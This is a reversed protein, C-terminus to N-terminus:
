LRSLEDWESGNYVLWMQSSGPTDMIYDGALNMDDVDDKLTIDASGAALLLVVTQGQGFLGALTNLDVASASTLTHFPALVNVANAVVTLAEADGTDDMQNQGMELGAPASGTTFFLPTTVGVLENKFVKCQDSIVGLQMATQLSLLKNNDIVLDSVNTVTIGDGIAQGNVTNRAISLLVTQLSGESCVVAGDSQGEIQNRFVNVVGGIQGLRIGEVVGNITNRHILADQIGTLAIGDDVLNNIANRRLKVRRAKEASSSNFGNIFIGQGASLGFIQNLALQWNTGINTNLGQQCYLGAVGSTLGDIINRSVTLDRADGRWGIAAEYSDFFRNRAIVGGYGAELFLTGMRDFTNDTAIVHGYSGPVATPDLQTAKIPRRGATPTAEFDWNCAKVQAKVDGVLLISSADDAAEYGGRFACNDFKVVQQLGSTGGQQVKVDALGGNKFTVDSFSLVGLTNVVLGLGDSVAAEFLAAIQSADLVEDYIFVESARAATETTFSSDALAGLASRTTTVDDFWQGEAGTGETTLVANADVAGQIYMLYNAGDNTIVFFLYDLDDLPVSAQFTVSNGASTQLKFEPVGNNVGFRIFQAATADAQSYVICNKTLDNVAIFFGVTGQTDLEVLDGTVGDVGVEFYDGQGDFFIAANTPDNILPGNVQFTPDGGTAIVTGDITSIGVDAPFGSAANMRWYHDPGPGNPDTENGTNTLTDNFGGDPPADVPDDAFIGNVANWVQQVETATLPNPLWCFAGLGNGDLDDGFVGGGLTVEQPLGDAADKPLANIWSDEDLAGSPSVSLEQDDKYFKLGSTGDQVITLLVYDDLSIDGVATLTYNNTGDSIEATLTYIPGTAAGVRVRIYATGTNNTQLMWISNTLGVSIGDDFKMLICVTGQTETALFNSPTTTSLKPSSETSDPNFKHYKFTDAVLTTVDTDEVFDVPDATFSGIRMFSGAVYDTDNILPSFQPISVNDVSLATTIAMPVYYRPKGDTALSLFTHFLEQPIGDFNCGDSFLETMESDSPVSNIFWTPRQVIATTGVGWNVANDQNNITTDSHATTTTIIDSIWADDSTGTGSRTETLTQDVDNVKIHIGTGDGRQYALILYPLGTIITDNPTEVTYENLATNDFVSFRVRGNTEVTLRVYESGYRLELLTLTELKTCVATVAMFCGTDWTGADLASNAGAGLGPISDNSPAFIWYGYEGPTGRIMGPMRFNLRENTTTRVPDLAYVGGSGGNAYGSGTDEDFPYTFDAGLTLLQSAMTNPM